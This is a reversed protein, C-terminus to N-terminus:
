SAVLRQIHLHHAAPLQDTCKRTLVGTSVKVAEWLRGVHGMKLSAVMEKNLLLDMKLMIGQALTRDGLFPASPASQKAKKAKGKPASAAKAASSTTRPVWPKGTPYLHASVGLLAQQYAGMSSYTDTLCTAATKLDALSPIPVTEDAFHAFIDEAKLYV